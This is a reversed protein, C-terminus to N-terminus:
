QLGRSRIYSEVISHWWTCEQPHETYRGVLELLQAEARQVGEMAPTPPTTPQNSEGPPVARRAAWAARMQPDIQQVVFVALDRALQYHATTPDDKNLRSHSPQTGTGTAQQAAIATALDIGAAFLAAQAARFAVIQRHILEYGPLARRAAYSLHCFGEYAVALAPNARRLLVLTIRDSTNLPGADPEPPRRLHNALIHLISIVTDATGFMGSALRYRDGQPTSVSGAHTNVDRVGKLALTIEVFNTHAFFDEMIHLASGYYERGVAPDDAYLANRFTDRIRDRTAEIYPAVPQVGLPANPDTAPNDFHQRPDYSGFRAPDMRAAVRAGFQVEAIIQAIQFLDGGTLPIHLNERIFDGALSIQNFDNAWNGLSIEQMEAASYQGALATQEIGAHQREGFRQVRGPAAPPSLPRRDRLVRGTRRNGVARQLALVGEPHTASVTSPDPVISPLEPAAEAPEPRHAPEPAPLQAAKRQSEHM